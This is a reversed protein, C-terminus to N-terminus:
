FSVGLGIGGYIQAKSSVPDYLPTISFKILVWKIRNKFGIVSTILIGSEKNSFRRGLLYIDGINYGNAFNYVIIGVGLELPKNFTYNLLVPIFTSRYNLDSGLGVRLSLNDNIYREYNLSLGIGNGGLESYIINEKGKNKIQETSDEKAPYDSSAFISFSNCLIILSIFIIKRM